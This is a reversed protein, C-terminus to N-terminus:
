FIAKILKDPEVRHTSGKGEFFGYQKIMYINLPTWEVTVGNKLNTLRVFGKPVFVNDMFPSILKGRETQYQIEYHDDVIGAEDAFEFAQDTFYQIREAIDGHSKGLSKLRDLDESIIEHYHRKDQGLFGELTVVGPKLREQIMEEKPTQKM